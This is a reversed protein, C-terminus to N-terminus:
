WLPHGKLMLSALMGANKPFAGVLASVFHCWKFIFLKIVKVSAESVQILCHWQWHVQGRKFSNICVVGGLAEKMITRKFTHAKWSESAIM